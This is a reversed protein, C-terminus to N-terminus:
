AGRPDRFKSRSAWWLRGQLWLTGEIDDGVQPPETGTWARGTLYVDLEADMNDLQMVCVRARWGAQGLWASFATVRRVPGRFSYDDRDWEDVPLFIISGDMGIRLEPGLDADAGGQLWGALASDRGLVLDEASSPSANYAIGTLIFDARRGSEYWCRSSLFTLDFFSVPVGAWLGEVQAEAGSSWVHVREVEIGVQPGFETYPSVSVLELQKVSVRLTAMLGQRANPWCVYMGKCWSEPVKRPGPYTDGFGGYPMSEPILGPLSRLMEDPSEYFPDWHSGCYHQRDESEWSFTSEPWSKKTSM